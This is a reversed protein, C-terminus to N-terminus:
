RRRQYIPDTPKVQVLVFSEADSFNRHVTQALEYMSRQSWRTTGIKFDYVCVRKEAPIYEYADLRHTDKAGYPAPKGYEVPKERFDNVIKYYSEEAKFNPDRESNIQQKLLFHVESSFVSSRMDEPLHQDLYSVTADTLGQVHELRPCVKKVEDRDLVRIAGVDLKEKNNEDQPYERARFKEDPPIEKRPKDEAKLRYEIVTQNNADNFNSLQDFLWLLLGSRAASRASASPPQAPGTTPTRPGAADPRTPAAAPAAESSERLFALQNRSAEEPADLGASDDAVRDSQLAALRTPPASGRGGRTWRGGDDHGAPVRPQNPDYGHRRGHFEPNDHIEPNYRFLSVSCRM